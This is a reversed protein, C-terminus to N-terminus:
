LATENEYYADSGKRTIGFGSGATQGEENLLGKAYYVHETKRLSTVIPKLQARTMGTARELYAYGFCYDERVAVCAALVKQENETM